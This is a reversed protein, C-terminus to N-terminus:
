PKARRHILFKINFNITDSGPTNNAALMAERLSIVDDLGPNAILNAISSTDGDNVDTTSNVIVTAAWATHGAPPLVLVLALVLVLLRFGKQRM